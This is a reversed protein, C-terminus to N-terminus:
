SDKELGRLKGQLDNIEVKMKEIKAFQEANIEREKV